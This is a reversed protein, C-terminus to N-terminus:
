MIVCRNRSDGKVPTTKSKLMRWQDELAAAKNEGFADRLIERGAKRKGWENMPRCDFDAGAQILAVCIAYLEEQEEQPAALMKMEKWMYYDDLKIYLFFEWVSNGKKIFLKQNPDAGQSLLMTVLDIKDSLAKGVKPPGLLWQMHIPFLAFDLLSLDCPAFGQLSMGTPRLREPNAKIRACVYRTLRAHVVLALFDQCLYTHDEFGQVSIIEIGVSWRSDYEDISSIEELVRDLEDLIPFFPTEEQLTMRRDHEQAYYLMDSTLEQLPPFDEESFDEEPPGLPRATSGKLLYLCINGLSVLPDFTTKLFGQLHNHYTDRLYDRVTRHLFDVSRSLVVPHQKDDIILLDGCRNQLRAELKPYEPAFDDEVIQKIPAKFAYDQRSRQKELLAFAYLPLPGRQEIMILFIQAMAEKHRDKIKNVIRGFFDNLDSPLEDVIRRLSDVDEDRDMDHLIERTVLFVWLWVGEARRAIDSVLAQFSAIDSANAAITKLKSSSHLREHVYHQMDSKTFHAIDFTRDIHSIFSEYTRRPRSSVCLKVYGSISLTELIEIIDAEEGHYEDLGDIFFCFKADLRTHKTIQQFAARLEGISWPELQRHELCALSILNPAARLVEYLLTQFLGVSSKQMESGQNWFYYSATYLETTGAWTKLFRQTREDKYIYKMM